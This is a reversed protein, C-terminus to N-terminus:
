DITFLIGPTCFPAYPSPEHKSVCFSIRRLLIAENGATLRLSNNKENIIHKHAQNIGCINITSMIARAYTYGIRIM